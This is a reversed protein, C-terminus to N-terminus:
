VIINNSCSCFLEGSFLLLDRNCGFPWVLVINLVCKIIIYCLQLTIRCLFVYFFAIHTGVCIKIYVYFCVCARTEGISKLVSLMYLSMFLFVSENYSSDLSILCQLESESSWVLLYWLGLLSFFGALLLMMFCSVCFYM